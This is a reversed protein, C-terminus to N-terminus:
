EVLGTKIADLVADNDTSIIYIYYIGEKTEIKTEMRDKVLKYQDPLYVEWVKEHQKMFGDLQTKLEAEEGEKPLAIIYLSSHVIFAPMAIVGKEIIAADIGYADLINNDPYYLEGYIGLESIAQQAADIDLSSPKGSCSVLAFMCVAAVALCMIKKM